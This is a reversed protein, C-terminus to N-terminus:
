YVYLHLKDKVHQHSSKYVDITFTDKGLLQLSWWCKIEHHSITGTPPRKLIRFMPARSISLNSSFIQCFYLRNIKQINSNCSINFHSSSRYSSSNTEFILSHFITLALIYFFTAITTPFATIDVGM